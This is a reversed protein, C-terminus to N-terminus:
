PPSSPRRVPRELIQHVPIWYVGTSEMVVTTIGCEKFWDAMAYLDATFCRFKRVAQEDRDSPVAAYHEDSGIDIGAADTNIVQFSKRKRGRARKKTNGKKM